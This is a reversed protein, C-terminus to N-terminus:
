SLWGFVIAAAIWGSTWHIAGLIIHNWVSM